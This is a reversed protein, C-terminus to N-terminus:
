GQGRKPQCQHVHNAIQIFQEVTLNEARLKPDINIKSLDNASIFEKLSNSITKRRMNFAAKVINDFLEFNLLNNYNSSAKPKLYVIASEVKPKPNFATAPINFIKQCDCFIQAMVSLRGYQKSNPKATIRDVVELQLMFLMDQIHSIHNFLYFLIPTSINYPLNGIIRIRNQHNQNTQETETNNLLQKFDFKLIDINYLNIKSGYKDILKAALDNDVEVLNLHNIKELLPKTLAGLGPGIELIQQEIKPNFAMIIKNILNHDVLFNQGFKKKAQYSKNKSQNDSM